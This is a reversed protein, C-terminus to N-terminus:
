RRKNINVWHFRDDDDIDDSPKSIDIENVKPLIRRLDHLGYRREYEIDFEDPIIRKHNIDLSDILDNGDYEFHTLRLLITKPEGRVYEIYDKVPFPKSTRKHRLERNIYTIPYPWIRGDDFEDIILCMLIVKKKM